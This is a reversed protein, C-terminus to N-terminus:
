PLAAESLKNLGLRTHTKVVGLPKGTQAAIEVSSLGSFYARNLIDRQLPVLSGVSARAIKQLEPLVTMAADHHETSFDDNKRETRNWHLMAISRSRAAALMWELPSQGPILSSADKWIRTYVDLLAEEARSQEGVIRYILGFLLRCSRDYLILLAGKDGSRIKEMLASATDEDFPLEDCYENGENVTRRRM